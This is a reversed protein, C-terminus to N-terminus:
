KRAAEIADKLVPLFRSSRSKVAILDARTTDADATDLSRGARAVAEIFDTDAFVRGLALELCGSINAPLGPPAVVLRGAGILNAIARADDEAGRPALGSAAARKVALGTGGGLTPVGALAPHGSIPSSSIQLLPRLDGAAIRDAISEFTHSVLDADGRMAALSTQRSGPFGALFAVAVQVLSGGLAACTFSATGVKDVAFLLPRSEAASLLDEITHYPSRGGTAWVHKSRGVRGLIKFDDLPDPVPTEGIMGAILMGPGNLIGLTSGDPAADRIHRAGIIGGAGPLNRVVIEVALEKALHPAILRSYIDYGGGPSFPVIWELRRGKLNGCQTTDGRADPPAAAVAVGAMALWKLFHRRTLSFAKM